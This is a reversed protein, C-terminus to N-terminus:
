RNVKISFAKSAVAGLSDRVRLTFSYTGKKTPKGSVAGTTSDLSLGPPLHGSLLSWTYPGTGGSATATSSYTVGVTGQPFTTTTITLPPAAAVAISLAQTDTQSGDGVQASFSFTGASAPTGSVVGTLANLALGPPLSGASVSWTYSGQGGTAALTQSYSQGVAGGPLSTTTIVLPEPAVVISLAQSATRAQSASDTAQVTFPFSGPTTPTGTVDGTAADLTLGPPLSGTAVSWSYPAKGGTGAVTQSYPVGVTADPLSTTSVALPDALNLALTKTATQSAADTVQATFSYTGALEAPTGTLAGTNPDLSLGAPLAGSGVSWTYPTTGGTAALTQSYAQTNTADALSTTTISPLSPPPTTVPTCSVARGSTLLPQNYSIQRGITGSPSEVGASASAGANWASNGFDTDLWQYRIEGTSERLSLEFTATGSGSLSFHPVSYWEVYLTRNPASGAVGAYVDGSGGFSTGPNLDDWLPALVGNPSALNPLVTNAFADADASSGLELFGNSSVYATSYTQGYYTFPFTINLATYGDDLDSAGGSVKGGPRADVWSFAADTCTYNPAATGTVTKTATAGGVTVSATVNLSGAATVMYSGSYLANDPSAASLPVATGNVTVSVNGLGAPSACNAGIVRVPLVDGIGASFGAAPASLLVKPANSCSVANFVNLRGGTATMGALSARTDVSSMLLAKEGYLTAGPFHAAVLAAAGSVHPTAMSTGSFTSYTNGPTTSLIGVGPAALDVSTAGYNSFSALSDNSDTAAVSVIADSAYSAPYSPTTDNNSSDNGAAAVFLMGKSAGYEIANSLGQDFPGGGWSNSAVSAGHDAAFLTASIADATSGSGNSGLFKLAMIRVHWNVGAVGIGNDGVAGITGSVHTGHNNDDFPNNDHNIFDWGRWDDVYGDNDNDVGDTRDGCSITPDSSGCNEGPNVWQQAALDPHSFDVGTDIVAVVVSSSGKELDWAEPADIDDDPTGGTQGTNNLGWLSGFSPDNPVVFASVVHNPEVYSVRPDSALAKEVRELKKDPAGALAAHIQKFSKKRTAGARSLAAAQASDSVGARFGVILEGPVAAPKNAPAASVSRAAGGGLGLAAVVAAVGLMRM